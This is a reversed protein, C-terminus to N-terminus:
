WFWRLEASGKSTAESVYKVHAAMSDTLQYQVETGWVPEFKDAKDWNEVGVFGLMKLGEFDAYYALHPRLRVYPTTTHVAMDTMVYIVGSGHASWAKGVGFSWLGDYRQASGVQERMQAGVRMQWSWTTDQVMMDSRNLKRMRIFDVAELFVDHQNGGAGMEMDLLVLADGELTNQGTSNQNYGVWHLRPYTGEAATQGVGLGLMMAKNGTAPSPMETVVPTRQSQPPLKLRALLLQRKLNRTEDSPQLGEKVMRYNYYSLSANLVKSQREEDLVQLQTNLDKGNNEILKKLVAQADENLLSIQDNLKRQNSPLFRIDRIILPQGRKSRLVNIEQLRQFAEVPLYWAYSTELLPEDIVLELLESLQYACNEALFYYKLKKGLLEWIHYILLKRQDETFNLEYEWMDRSELKSYVLDQTYYYKDSFSAEYGGTIGNFIYSLTPEDKPVLAGYNVASDFLDNAKVKTEVTLRLLSHGFTSAPNGLYGSVMILSVGTHQDAWQNLKTCRQLAAESLPLDMFQSLWTYRAPFLCTAHSQTKENWPKEFAQITAELESRASFQDQSALFFSPSIIKSDGSRADVHLLKQWIRHQALEQIDAQTITAGEAVGIKLMLM